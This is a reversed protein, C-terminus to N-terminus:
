GDEPAQYRYKGAGVKQALRAAALRQTAARVAAAPVKADPDIWGRKMVEALIERLAWVRQPESELIRRVAEQGRPAEIAAAEDPTLEVFLSLSRPANGTDALEEVGAVIKRLSEVESLARQARDEATALERRLAPLQRVLEDRALPSSSSM